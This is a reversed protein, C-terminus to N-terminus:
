ISRPSIACFVTGIMPHPHASIPNEVQIALRGAIAVAPIGWPLTVTGRGYGHPTRPSDWAVPPMIPTVGTTGAISEQLHWLLTRTAQGVGITLEIALRTILDGSKWGNFDWSVIASWQRAVLDLCQARVIQDSYIPQSMPASFAMGVQGGWREPDGLVGLDTQNRAREVLRSSGAGPTM